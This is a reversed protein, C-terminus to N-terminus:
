IIDDGHFYIKNTEEIFENDECFCLIKVNNLVVYNHLSANGIIQYEGCKSCSNCQLCIRESYFAEEHFGFVWHEDFDGIEVRNRSYANRILHLVSERKKALVRAYEMSRSDYFAYQNIINLVDTPLKYQLVASM